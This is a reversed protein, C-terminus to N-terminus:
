ISHFKYVYFSLICFIIVIPIDLYPYILFSKNGRASKVLTNYEIHKPIRQQIDEQQNQQEAEANPFEIFNNNDQHNQADDAINYLEEVNINMLDECFTDFDNNEITNSIENNEIRRESNIFEIENYDNQNIETKIFDTTEKINDEGSEGQIISNFDISNKSNISEISEEEHISNNDNANQKQANPETIDDDSNNESHIENRIIPIDDPDIKLSCQECKWERSKIALERRVEDTEDIGGIAGNSKTPMFAIISLLATRVDWAPNWTDPHFSTISFCIKTNTEFRGNPTFFYIDPPAFPYQAPFVIKGHYLGGEFATGKQGKITFHWTFLDDQCPSAVFETEPQRELNRYETLLRKLAPNNNNSAMLENHHNKIALFVRLIFFYFFESIQNM